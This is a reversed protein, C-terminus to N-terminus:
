RSKLIEPNSESSSSSITEGNLWLESAAIDMDDNWIAGLGHRDTQVARFFDPDRILHFMDLHLHRRFDYRRVDGNDFECLLHHDPLAKVSILSPYDTWEANM